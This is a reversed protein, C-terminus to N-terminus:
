RAGGTAGRMFAAAFVCAGASALACLALATM